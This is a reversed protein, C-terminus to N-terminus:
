YYIYTQESMSVGNTRENQKYKDVRGIGGAPRKKTTTKNNTTKKNNRNGCM